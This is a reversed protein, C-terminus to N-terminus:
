RCCALYGTTCWLPCGTRWRGEAQWLGTQGVLQYFNRAGNRSLTAYEATCEILPHIFHCKPCEKDPGEPLKRQPKTEGPGRAKDSTRTVVVNLAKQITNSRTLFTAFEEEVV